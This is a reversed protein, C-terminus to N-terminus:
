AKYVLWLTTLITFIQMGTLGFAVRNNSAKRWHYASQGSHSSNGFHNSWQNPLIPNISQDFEPEGPEGAFRAHHTPSPNSPPNRGQSRGAAPSKLAVRL